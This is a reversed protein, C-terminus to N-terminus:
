FEDLKLTVLWLNQVGNLSAPAKIYLRQGATVAVSIIATGSRSGSAITVGGTSTPSSAANQVLFTTDASATPGEPDAHIEVYRVRYAVSSGLPRVGDPPFVTSAAVVFPYPLNYPVPFSGGNAGAPGAPGPTGNVGVSREILSELDDMRRLIKEIALRTERSSAALKDDLQRGEPSM